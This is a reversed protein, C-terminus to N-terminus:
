PVCLVDNRLTCLSQGSFADADMGYDSVSTSLSSRRQHKHCNSNSGDLKSTYAKSHASINLLNNAAKRLRSLVEPAVYNRTGLASLDRVKRHSHSEDLEDITERTRSRGRPANASVEGLVQRPATKEIPENDQALDDACLARAFGFDILTINCSDVYRALIGDDDLEDSWWLNDDIKSGSV